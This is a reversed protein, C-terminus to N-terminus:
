LEEATASDRGRPRRREELSDASKLNASLDSHSCLDHVETPASGVGRAEVLRSTRAAAATYPTMGRTGPTVPLVLLQAPVAGAGWQPTRGM